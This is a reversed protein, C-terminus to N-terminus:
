KASNIKTNSEHKKENDSVAKEASFRIRIFFMAFFPEFFALSASSNNSSKSRNNDLTKTPLLIEFRLAAAMQVTSNTLLKPSMPAVNDVIKRVTTITTKASTVGFVRALSDGSRYASSQAGINFNKTTKSVGILTNKLKHFFPRRRKTFVLALSCTM